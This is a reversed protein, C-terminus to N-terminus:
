SIYRYSLVTLPVEASWLEILMRKDEKFFPETTQSNRVRMSTM